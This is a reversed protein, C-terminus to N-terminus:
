SSSRAAQEPTFAGAVEIGQHAAKCLATLSVGVPAKRMLNDVFQNTVRCAESGIGIWGGWGTASADSAMTADAVIVPLVRAMPMGKAGAALANEAWWQLEALAQV